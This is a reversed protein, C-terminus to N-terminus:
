GAQGWGCAPRAEQGRTEPDVAGMPQASTPSLAASALVAGALEGAATRCGVGRGVGTRAYGADAAATDLLSATTAVLGLRDTAALGCDSDKISPPTALMIGMFSFCMGAKSTLGSSDRARCWAAAAIQDAQREEPPRSTGFTATIEARFWRYLTEGERDDVQRLKEPLQESRGGHKLANLAARAKGEATAPGTSKQANARNAALFARTRAPSKRLAM